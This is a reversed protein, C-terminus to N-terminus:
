VFLGSGSLMLVRPFAYWAKYATLSTAVVNTVLSLIAAAAGFRDGSFLQGFGAEHRVLELQCAGCTDAISVAANPHGTLWNALSIARPARQICPVCRAYRPAAGRRPRAHGGKVTGALAPVHAVM